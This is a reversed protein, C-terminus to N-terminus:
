NGEHTGETKAEVRRKTRSDLFELAESLLRIAMDNEHCAFRGGSADQYHAIRQRAADIIDEVFAGNPAVREETGVRGLPGNQWDIRFGTGQVHGGAPRGESDTNNEAEFGIRM